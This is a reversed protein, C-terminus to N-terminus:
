PKFLGPHRQEPTEIRDVVELALNLTQKEPLVCIQDDCAQWEITLPINVSGAKASAPVQISGKIDVTGEYISMDGGLADLTVTKAKPYVLGSLKFPSANTLSLRTPKLFDELPKESNVHWTEDIAIRVVIDFSSGPTAKTQAAYLDIAVPTKKIQADSQAVAGATGALRRFYIMTEL